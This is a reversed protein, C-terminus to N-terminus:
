RLKMAFCATGRNNKGSLYLTGNISAAYYTETYNCYAIELTHSDTLKWFGRMCGGLEVRGMAGPPLPIAWDNRMSSAGQQSQSLIFLSNSTRCATVAGSTLTVVDYEGIVDAATIKQLQLDHNTAEISVPFVVPWHQASFYMPFVAPINGNRQSGQIQCHMLWLNDGESNSSREIAECVISTCRFDTGLEYPSLCSFGVHGDFDSCDTLEFGNCDTYPGTIHKSRGVRVHSDAGPLGYTVFLYYYGSAANYIVIPHSILNQCFDPRKAVCIGEGILHALGNRPNLHQVYIGKSGNTYFLFHDQSCADECVWLHLADASVFDCTLVVDRQAFATEQEPKVDLVIACGTETEQTYYKRLERKAQMYYEM